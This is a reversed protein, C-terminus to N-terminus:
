PEFCSFPKMTKGKSIFRHYKDLIWSTPMKFNLQYFNAVLPPTAELLLRGAAVPPKGAGVGKGSWERLEEEGHIKKFCM